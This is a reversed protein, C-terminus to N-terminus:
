ANAFIEELELEYKCSLGAIDVRATALQDEDGAAAEVLEAVRDNFWRGNGPMIPPLTRDFDLGTM